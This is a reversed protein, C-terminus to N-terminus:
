LQLLGLRALVRLVLVRLVLVLVLLMLRTQRRVSVSHAQTSALRLASLLAVM